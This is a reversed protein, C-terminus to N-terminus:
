DAKTEKDRATALLLAWKRALGVLTQFTNEMWRKNCSYPLPM